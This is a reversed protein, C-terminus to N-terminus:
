GEVCTVTLQTGKEDPVIGTINLTHDVWVLRDTPLVEYNRMLVEFTTTNYGGSTATTESSAMAKVSAWRTAVTAWSKQVQGTAGRTETARQIGVRHRLKGIQM